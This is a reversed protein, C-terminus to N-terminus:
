GAVYTGVNLHNHGLSFRKLRCDKQYRNKSAAVGVRLVMYLDRSQEM